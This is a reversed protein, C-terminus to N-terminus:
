TLCSDSASSCLSTHLVHCRKDLGSHLRAVDHSIHTRTLHQTKMVDQLQQICSNQRQCDKLLKDTLTLSVRQESVVWIDSMVDSIALLIFCIYIYISAASKNREQKNRQEERVERRVQQSRSPLYTQPIFSQKDLSRVQKAQVGDM